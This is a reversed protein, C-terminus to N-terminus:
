KGNNYNGELVKNYNTDNKLLWDLGFWNGDQILSSKSAISLCEALDDLYDYNNNLRTKLQSYRAPTMKRIPNLGVSKANDNWVDLFEQPTPLFYPLTKTGLNTDSIEYYVKDVSDSDVSDVKDSGNPTGRSVNTVFDNYSIKKDKESRLANVYSKARDLLDSNFQVVDQEDIPFKKSIPNRTSNFGFYLVLQITMQKTYKSVSYQINGGTFDYKSYNTHNEIINDIVNNKLTNTVIQKDNTKKRLAGRGNENHNGDNM